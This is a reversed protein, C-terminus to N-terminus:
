NYNDFRILKGYIPSYSLIHKKLSFIKNQWGIWMILIYKLNFENKIRYTKFNSNKHYRKTDKQSTTM